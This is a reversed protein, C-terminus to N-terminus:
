TRGGGASPRTDNYDENHVTHANWGAEFASIAIAPLFQPVRLQKHWEKLARDRAAKEEDNM